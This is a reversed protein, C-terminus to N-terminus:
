VLGMFYTRDNVGIKCKISDPSSDTLCSVGFHFLCSPASRPNSGPESQIRTRLELDSSLTVEENNSRLKLLSKM